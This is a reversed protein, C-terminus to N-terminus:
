LLTRAQYSTAETANQVQAEEKAVQMYIRKSLSLFHGFRNSLKRRQVPESHHKSGTYWFETSGLAKHGISCDVPIPPIQFLSIELQAQAIDSTQRSFDRMGACGFICQCFDDM